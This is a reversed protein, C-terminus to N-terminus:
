HVATEQLGLALLRAELWPGVGHTTDLGMRVM